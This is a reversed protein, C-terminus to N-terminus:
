TIVVEVITITVTDSRYPFSLETVIFRVIGADGITAKDASLMIHLPSVPLM